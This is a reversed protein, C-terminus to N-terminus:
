TEDNDISTLYAALWINVVASIDAGTEQASDQLLEWIQPAIHIEQKIWKDTGTLLSIVQETHETNSQNM